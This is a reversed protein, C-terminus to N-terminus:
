SNPKSMIIDLGRMKFQVYYGPINLEQLLLINQLQMLSYLIYVLLKKVLGEYSEVRFSSRLNDLRSLPVSGLMKYFM